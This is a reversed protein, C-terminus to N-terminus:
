PPCVRLSVTVSSLSLLQATTVLCFLLSADSKWQNGLTEAHDNTAAVTNQRSVVVTM